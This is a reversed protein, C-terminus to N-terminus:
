PSPPQEQVSATAGDPRLQGTARLVRATREFTAGLTGQPGLYSAQEAEDVLHIGKSLSARVEEPSIRMRAAMIAMAQDPERDAYARARFFARVFASVEAGREQLVRRDFALVDVIEGPIEHSSFITRGLGAREIEISSPPYTAVADVKGARLADPMDLVTIHQVQVDDWSMGHQELARALVLATLSGHEIAVRKGRLDAIGAIHPAAMLVDAGDSYDVVLIVEPERDSQECAILVESLTGFFGDCQGREFARRTDGLSSMEILKARVGEDEFYGLERAVTAFEYGPWPNIAVRLEEPPALVSRSTAVGLLALICVALVALAILGM